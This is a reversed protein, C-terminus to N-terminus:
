HHPGTQSLHCIQLSGAPLDESILLMVRDSHAAPDEATPSPSSLRTLFPFVEM